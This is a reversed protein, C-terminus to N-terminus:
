NFFVKSVKHVVDKTNVTGGFSDITDGFIITMFPMSIGSGVAAVTGVFMLLYDLSDAFSFLKYYPVRNISEEKGQNKNSHQQNDTIEQNKGLDIVINSTWATSQETIIEGLSTNEEAM